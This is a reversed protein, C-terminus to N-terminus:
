RNPRREKIKGTRKLEYISDIFEKQGVRIRDRNFGFNRRGYEIGFFTYSQGMHRGSVRFETKGEPTPLFLMMSMSSTTSTNGHPKFFNGIVVYGRTSDGRVMLSWLDKQDKALGGNTKTTTTQYTSPGWKPEISEQRFGYVTDMPYTTGAAEGVPKGWKFLLTELAIDVPADVLAYTELGYTVGKEIDGADELEITEALPRDVAVFINEPDQAVEPPLARQMEEEYWDFLYDSFPNVNSGITQLWANYSEREVQEPAFAESAYALSSFLALLAVFTKM